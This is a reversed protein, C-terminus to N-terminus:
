IGVALTGFENVRESTAGEVVALTPSLLCALATCVGALVLVLNKYM